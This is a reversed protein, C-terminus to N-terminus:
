GYPSTSDFCLKRGFYQVTVSQYLAFDTCVSRSQFIQAFFSHHLVDTTFMPKKKRLRCYEGTTKKDYM